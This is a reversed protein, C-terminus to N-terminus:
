HHCATLFEGVEQAVREPADEGIFHGANPLIVLEAHPIEKLFRHASAVPAFEDGEGWLIKTPVNMAALAGDYQRLEEFDGSRYLALQAARREPTAFAKFYEDVAEDTVKPSASKLVMSLTERNMNDMLTEGQGEARMATAMGHWKGDPFFGTDSILLASVKEPHECAWRLGILGGWDHVILAVPALDHEDVFADVAAVHETWTGAAGSLESDGYGPLDPAVGRYGAAAVAPLVDTWMYSSNPYGHVLLAVPAGTEGAERFHM